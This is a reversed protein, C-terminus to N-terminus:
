LEVKLPLWQVKTDPGAIKLKPARQKVFNEPSRTAEGDMPSMRDPM